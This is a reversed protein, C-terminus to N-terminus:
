NFLRSKAIGRFVRRAYHRPMERRLARLGNYAEIVDLYQEVYHELLSKADVCGDGKKNHGHRRKTRGLTLGISNDTVIYTITTQPEGFISRGALIECVVTVYNVTFTAIETPTTKKTTAM